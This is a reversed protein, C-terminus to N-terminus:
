RTRRRKQSDCASEFARELSRHARKRRKRHERAAKGKADLLADICRHFQDKTVLYTSEEESEESASDGDPTQISFFSGEDDDGQPADDRGEDDSSAIAESARGQSSAGPSSQSTQPTQLVASPSLSRRLSTHSEPCVTNEDANARLLDFLREYNTPVVCADRWAERADEELKQELTRDNLIAVMIERFRSAAIQKQDKRARHEKWVVKCYEATISASIGSGLLSSIMQSHPPFSFLTIEREICAAIFKPDVNFTNADLLLLRPTDDQGDPNTEPEFIEDLWHMLLGNEDLWGTKNYSVLANSEYSTAPPREDDKLIFYPPLRTGFCSVALVLSAIPRSYGKRKSVTVEKAAARAYGTSCLVYVNERSVRRDIYGELNGLFDELRRQEARGKLAAKAKAKDEEWWKKFDKWRHVFGKAWSQSFTKGIKKVTQCYAETM